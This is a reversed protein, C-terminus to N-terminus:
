AGDDRRREREDLTRTRRCENLESRENSSWCKL